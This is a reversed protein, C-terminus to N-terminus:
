VNSGRGLFWVVDSGKQRQASLTTGEAKEIKMAGGSMHAPFSEQGESAAPPRLLWGLAGYM